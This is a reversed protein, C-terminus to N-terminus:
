YYNARVRSCLIPMKNELETFFEEFIDEQIDMKDVRKKLM